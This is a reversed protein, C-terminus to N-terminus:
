KKFKSAEELWYNFDCDESHPPPVEKRLVFIADRFLAMVDSPNTDIEQIEKKFPLKDNFGNKKDVEKCIIGTTKSSIIAIATNIRNPYLESVKFNIKYRKIGIRINSPSPHNIM